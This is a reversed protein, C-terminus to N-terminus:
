NHNKSLLGKILGFAKLKFMYTFCLYVFSGTIFGILLKLVMDDMYIMEFMVILMMITSTVIYPMLDFLQKKYNYDLMKKSIYMNIVTAIANYIAFGIVLYLLGFGVTIIIIGILIIKKIIEIYLTIDTRNLVQLLALNIIGIPTISLAVSLIQLIIISQSWKDSLLVIILPESIAAILFMSPICLFAIIHIYNRYMETLKIPEKQYQALTPLAVKQIIQNVIDPMLRAFHNARTYFGLEAKAYQKGIIVSNIETFFASILGTALMKSGFGWLYSFSSKSFELTPKWKAKAWLLITRIFTSLVSQVALAWVGWGQYALFIAIIGTITQSFFQIQAQLKINFSATLLANQVICLSNFIVNLGIVWLLPKLLPERYFDAIFPSIAFLVFYVALGVIINFFFTTSCDEQTRDIKRILANSFGCEIFVNSLAIFLTLMGILGFDSPALIRALIINVILTVLQRAISDIGSWITANVSKSKIDM